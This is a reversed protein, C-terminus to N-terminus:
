RPKGDLARAARCVCFPKCSFNCGNLEPIPYAARELRELNWEERPEKKRRKKEFYIRMILTIENISYLSSFDDDCCIILSKNASLVCRAVPKWEHGGSMVVVSM